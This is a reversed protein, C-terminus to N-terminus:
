CYCSVQEVELVVDVDELEEVMDGILTQRRCSLLHSLLAQLSGATSCVTHTSCWLTAHSHQSCPM